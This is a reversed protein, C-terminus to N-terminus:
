TFSLYFLEKNSKLYELHKKPKSMRKYKNAEVRMLLPEEVIQGVEGILAAKMDRYVRDRGVEAISETEELQKLIYM